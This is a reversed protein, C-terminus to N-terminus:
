EELKYMQVSYFYGDYGNKQLSEMRKRAGEETKHISYVGGDHADMYCVAYLCQKEESMDNEMTILIFGYLIVMYM